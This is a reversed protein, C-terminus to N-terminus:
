ICVMHMHMYMYMCLYLLYFRSRAMQLRLALLLIWAQLIGTPQLGCSPIRRDSHARPGAQKAM